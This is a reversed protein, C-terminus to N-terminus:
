MNSMCIDYSKKRIVDEVVHESRNIVRMNDFNHNSFDKDIHDVTEEPLLYRGLHQEMLYKPYSVSSHKGDPYVIALRERSDKWKYPGYIKCNEYLM